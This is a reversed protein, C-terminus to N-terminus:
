EVECYQMALELVNSYSGASLAKSRFENALDQLGAKRLAKTCLGIINFVNGDQGSLQVTPKTDSDM